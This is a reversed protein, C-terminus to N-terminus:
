NLDIYVLKTKGPEVNTKLKGTIPDLDGGICQVFQAWIKEVKVGLKAQNLTMEADVATKGPNELRILVSGPRTWVMPTLAGTDVKVASAVDGAGLQRTESRYLGWELVSTLNEETFLKEDYTGYLEPRDDWTVLVYRVDHYNIDFGDILGAAQDLKPVVQPLLKGKDGQWSGPVQKDPLGQYWNYTNLHSDAVHQKKYLDSVRAVGGNPVGLEHMDLMLQCPRAKEQGAPDLGYNMVAIIAAGPRTWISAILGDGINKVVRENRWYPVFDIDDRSIGFHRFEPHYFIGGGACAGSDHMVSWNNNMYGLHTIHTGFNHPCSFAIMRNAPYVTIPDVMPFESDVISDAFPLAKLSIANTSHGSVGGPYLNNEQMMSWVRKYWERLTGCMGGPQVRGDELQYGLGATLSPFVKVMSIDFYFHRVGGEKVQKDMLWTMYDTYSKNLSEEGPVWDAKFYDYLGPEVTKDMYGRLAIQNCTFTRLRDAIGTYESKAVMGDSVEKCYKYYEPWRKHDEFPPSLISFYDRGTDWNVKWKGGSFGNCASVQNLRWGKALPKFPSANYQLQVTRPAVLVFPQEGSQTNIIHNRIALSRKERFLSHAPAMNSPVWGKDSDAAWLLGRMENGVWLNDYFNGITMGSGVTGLADLTNWVQGIGDPAQDLFRASYNGGVGVCAVYNSQTDDIPWEVRLSQIAVARVTPAYTLEINVLGDQEMWGKTTFQIGAAISKGSFEVRYDKASTIALKSTTPVVTEVGNITVVIRAPKAMVYGGNSKIQVPLGLGDFEYVRGVCSVATESFSGRALQLPVFPKLVRSTDGIKNNWWQAFDKAEDKKAFTTDRTLVVKGNEDLMSLSLKYTGPALQPLEILKEYKYLVLKDVKGSSIEKGSPDLVSYTMAAFKAGEPAESDLTDGSVWLCSRVPNFLTEMRFAEKVPTYNLYDKKTDKAFNVFYKYITNGGSTIVLSYTGSGVGAFSRDVDFRLSGSAPISLDRQQNLVTSGDKGDVKLAVSVDRMDDTPNYIVSKLDLKEDDLGTFKEIQVYPDVSSLTATPFGFSQLYGSASPFCAWEWGPNKLDTGLLIKLKDGAKMPEPLQLDKLNYSMELEWFRGDPRDHVVSGIKNDPTWNYLYQGISPYMKLYEGSGLSNIIFKFFSEAEGALKNRGLFDLGIEISDDFVTASSYRERKGRYLKHGPLIHARAAIYIHETDWGLYFAHPRGYYSNGGVNAMGMVRVAQRWESPDLNGDITPAKSMQPISFAPVQEQPFMWGANAGTQAYSMTCAIALLLAVPLFRRVM